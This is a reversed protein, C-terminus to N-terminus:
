TRYDANISVYDHSLDSTCFFAKGTGKGAEVRVTLSPKRMRAAADSEDYATACGAEVLQIDDIWLAFEAPEFPVGAYGAACAIRGWNPDEGFFATKCLQSTAIARAIKRADEDSPAGSVEITVFKTAGEGDRVLWHAMTTCIKSVAEEFAEFAQTGPTLRGGGCRGNALCLVTDSTSMDNDVCIQNFSTEVANKLAPQLDGPAIEADTTIVCIMTAMHPAIMGAGKAIAGLRMDVGDVNVALAAEKPETDTTMIAEAAEASGTGSLQEACLKVGDRIREMPLPAGIVGTSCVCIDEAAVDLEAAAREATQRVDAMGREGTCANANGSNIFVARATGRRCVEINWLVPAARFRNTTFMGAVSAPKDSVVLACDRKTSGPKVGAAVGAARCGLPATVGGEIVNIM